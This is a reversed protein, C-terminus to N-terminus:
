CVFNKVIDQKKFDSVATYELFNGKLKQNQSKKIGKIKSRSRFRTRSCSGIELSYKVGAPPRGGGEEELPSAALAMGLRLFVATQERTGSANSQTNGRHPFNPAFRKAVPVSSAIWGEM